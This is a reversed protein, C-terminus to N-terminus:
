DAGNKRPLYLLTTISFRPWVTDTPAFLLRADPETSRQHETRNLQKREWRFRTKALYQVIVRAKGACLIRMLFQNWDRKWDSRNGTQQKYNQKKKQNLQPSLAKHKMQNTKSKTLNRSNYQHQHQQRCMHSHCTKSTHVPTTLSWM